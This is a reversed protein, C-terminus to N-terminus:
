AFVFRPNEAQQVASVAIPLNAAIVRGTDLLPAVVSASVAGTIGVVRQTTFLFGALVDSGDTVGSGGETTTTPTIAPSSGGTFSGTATMVPVDKGAWKVGTGFTVTWATGPGPGGTVAIDGPSVNSIAELATQVTTATANYAIAATTEGDLTLTFTGGTPTGTITFVKVETAKAALPVAYGVNAGSTPLALAVGSPIFGNPYHTGSTFTSIKLTVSRPSQTGRASGLWSHNENGFSDTRMALDV